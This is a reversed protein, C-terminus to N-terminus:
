CSYPIKLWKTDSFKGYIFGEFSDGEMGVSWQDVWVETFVGRVENQNEGDPESVIEFKATVTAFDLLKKFDVIARYGVKAVVQEMIEKNHKISDKDYARLDVVAKQWAQNETM